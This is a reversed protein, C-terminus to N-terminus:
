NQSLNGTVSVLDEKNLDAVVNKSPIKTHELHDGTQDSFILLSLLVVEICYSYKCVKFLKFHIMIMKLSYFNFVLESFM